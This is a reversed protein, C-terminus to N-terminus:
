NWAPSYRKTLTVQPTTWKHGRRGIQGGVRRRVAPVPAAIRWPRPLRFRSRLRSDQAQAADPQSHPSCARTQRIILDLRLQLGSRISPTPNVLRESRALRRPQGTLSRSRELDKVLERQVAINGSTSVGPRSVNRDERVGWWTALAPRGRCPRIGPDLLRSLSVTITQPRRPALAPEGFAPTASDDLQFGTGAHAFRPSTWV